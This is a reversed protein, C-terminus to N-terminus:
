EGVPGYTKRAMVLEQRHRNLEAGYHTRLVAAEFAAIRKEVGQIERQLSNVLARGESTLWGLKKAAYDLDRLSYEVSEVEEWCRFRARLIQQPTLKAHGSAAWSSLREFLIAGMTFTFTAHLIGRLPRLSRRWPSYFIEQNRDHRHMVYKRLLLNLHHHSNEHVLDDILDLGDREFTNLFSLGPLHRYSFSVVGHAKLPVIRQSLLALNRAGDLWAEESVALAKRIREALGASTSAVSIPVRDKRSYVLTPGLTLGRPWVRNPAKLFVPWVHRWEWRLQKGANLVTTTLRGVRLRINKERIILTANFERRALERRVPAPPELYAGAVGLSVCGALEVREFNQSLDFRVSWQRSGTQELWDCPLGPVLFLSEQIVQQALRVCLGSLRRALGASEPEGRPFLEDLYSNEYFQEECEAFLGAAFQSPNRECRLQERLDIFYVLDNLEEIWGVVKWSSYDEQRLSQGVLRFYVVPLRMVATPGPYHKELDNCLEDLLSRMSKSFEHILSSLFTPEFLKVRLM